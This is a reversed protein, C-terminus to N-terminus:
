SQHKKLSYFDDWDHHITERLPRKRHLREFFQAKVKEVFVKSGIAWGKTMYKLKHHSEDLWTTQIEKGVKALAESVTRDRSKFQKQEGLAFRLFNLYDQRQEPFGSAEYGQGDTLLNMLLPILRGDGAYINGSLKEAYSSWYYDKPDVVIGARVPNLIVYLICRLLSHNSEILASDFRCSFLVGQRKHKKNFWQTFRQEINGVIYSLDHIKERYEDLTSQEPNLSARHSLEYKKKLTLEDMDDLHPISIVFHWHNDLSVWEHIYCAFRQEALRLLDRFKQKEEDHLVFSGGTMRSTILYFMEGESAHIKFRCYSM